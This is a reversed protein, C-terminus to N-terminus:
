ARAEHQKRWCVGCIPRGDIIVVALRRDNNACLLSHSHAADIQAFALKYEALSLAGIRWQRYIEDLEALAGTREILHM